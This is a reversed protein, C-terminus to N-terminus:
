VYFGFDAFLRWFVWPYRPELDILYVHEYTASNVGFYQLSSM